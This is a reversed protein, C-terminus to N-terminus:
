DRPLEQCIEALARLDREVEDLAQAAYDVVLDTVGDDAYAALDIGVDDPTGFLPRDRRERGLGLRTRLAVRHGAPLQAVGAAVEGPTLAIPHWGDLLAARRLVRPGNGGALLPVPTSPPAFDDIEGHLAARIVEVREDTVAGRSEFDEGLAAFEAESWGSGAGAVVRGGSLEQLSALARATPLPSRYPLVLVSFGLLLGPAHEAAVALSVFPDLWEAGYRAGLEGAAVVHDSAWVADYELESALQAIRRVASVGEPGSNRLVVGVRM